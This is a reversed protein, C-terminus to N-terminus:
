NSKIQVIFLSVPYKSKNELVSEIGSDMWIWNDEDTLMISQYKVLIEPGNLKIVVSHYINIFTKTSLPKLEIKQVHFRSNNLVIDDSEKELDIKIDNSKASLNEIAILRYLSKGVNAFRHVFSSDSYTINGGVWGDPIAVTRSSGNPEDLWASSGNIAIYCIDDAHVHFATTDGPNTRVDMIRAEPKSLVLHHHSEQYVPIQAQTTLCNTFFIAVLILLKRILSEFNIKTM